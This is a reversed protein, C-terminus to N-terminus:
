PQRPTCVSWDANCEIDAPPYCGKPGAMEYFPCQGVTDVYSEPDGPTVPDSTFPIHGGQQKSQLEEDSMVPAAPHAPATPTSVPEVAESPEPSANQPAEQAPEPVIPNESQETKQAEHLAELTPEAQSAGVIASAIFCAIAIAFIIYSIKLDKRPSKM